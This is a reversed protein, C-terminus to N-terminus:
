KGDEIEKMLMKSNEPYLDKAEEPLHIGLYGIRKSAITFPITKKIDRESLENNM